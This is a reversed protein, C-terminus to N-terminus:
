SVDCCVAASRRGHLEVIVESSSCRALVRVLTSFAAAGSGESFDRLLQAHTPALLLPAPRSACAACKTEPNMTELCLEIVNALTRCLKEPSCSSMVLLAARTRVDALATRRACASRQAAGPDGPADTRHRAPHAYPAHVACRATRAAADASREGRCASRQAAPRVFVSRLQTAVHLVAEPPAKQQRSEIYARYPDEKSKLKELIELQHAGDQAAAPAYTVV